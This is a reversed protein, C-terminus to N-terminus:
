FPRSATTMELGSRADFDETGGQFPPYEVAQPKL